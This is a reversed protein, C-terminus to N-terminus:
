GPRFPRRSRPGGPDATIAGAWYFALVGLVPVFMAATMEWGQRWSHRRHRMWGIMTVSMASGTGLMFLDPQSVRVSELSSGAVGTIVGLILGFAFMGAFMAVTM